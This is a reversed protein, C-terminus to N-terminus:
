LTFELVLFIILFSFYFFFMVFGLTRSLQWKFGAVFIYSVALFGALLIESLILSFNLEKFTGIFSGYLLWPLGLGFSLNLINSGLNGSLAMDGHGDMTVRLTNILDPISVGGALLTM